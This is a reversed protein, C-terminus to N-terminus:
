VNAGDVHTQSACAPTQLLYADVNSDSCGTRLGRDARETTVKALVSAAAICTVSADGKVVLQTPTDDLGSPKRCCCMMAHCPVHCLMACCPVANCAPSSDVSSCTNSASALAFSLDRVDFVLVLLVVLRNGDILLHDAALGAGALGEVATRM